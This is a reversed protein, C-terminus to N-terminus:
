QGRPVSKNDVLCAKNESVRKLTSFFIAKEKQVKGKKGYRQMTVFMNNM